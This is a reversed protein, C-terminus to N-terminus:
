HRVKETGHEGIARAPNGAVRAGDPVNRIVTSGLGVLAGDGVRIGNMISSGSGLYCNEGITTGGAITVSAGILSWAGVVVDHHVVTNPMIVVHDGIVANSTIVAGAMVVVNRGLTALPSLCARPHIVRAFRDPPVALGAIVGRRDRYSTPSGPVALVLAEPHDALAQRGVVRHGHANWGQKEPTDDVFAVCRFADGLCDLAELGNGNYPFILLPQPEAM